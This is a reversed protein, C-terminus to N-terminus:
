SRLAPMVPEIADLPRRASTPSIAAYSRLADAGLPGVLRELDAFRVGQRVLHAICTHRLVPSGVEQARELGADYAACLMQTELADPTAPRGHLAILAEPESGARQALVAHLRDFLRLDRAAAGRVHLVGHELDVDSRRLACVEEATLGSCVLMAALQEDPEAAALLAAVESQALERPLEPAPPPLAAASAVGIAAPHTPGALPPAASHLPLGTAIRHTVLISSRRDTRHFLEVILTALLALLLSAGSAIAADRSYDPRWAHVPPTAPELVRVVLARARDSAALMAKRQVAERYARELDSLAQEQAKFENFRSGFQAVDVRTGAINEETRQKAAKASALEDQAAALASRASAQRAAVLKRELDAIRAPNLKLNPDRTLYDPTYLRELNLQDEQLQALRQELSALMAEDRPNVVEKGADLAAKVDRLKGEAASVRDNAVNLAATQNRAQALVQNEDRESSVISNRARFREVEARKQAVIGELRKVEADAHEAADGSSARGSEELNVRYSQVVENIMAAALERTSATAVIEVIGTDPVPNLQLRAQMGAVPDPGLEALAHGQRGLQTAAPEVVPRSTMVQMQAATTAQPLATKIEVASLPAAPVIEIRSSARYVAPRAFTYGLGVALAVVLTAAFVGVRRRLVRRPAPAEQEATDALQMDVWAM